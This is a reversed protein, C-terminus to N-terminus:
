HHEHHHHEDHAKEHHMRNHMHWWKKKSQERFAAIDAESYKQKMQQLDPEIDKLFKDFAAKTMEGRTQVLLLARVIQNCEEPFLEHRDPAWVEAAAVTRLADTGRLPSLQEKARAFTTPRHKTM